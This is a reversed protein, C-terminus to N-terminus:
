PPLPFPFPPSVGGHLVCVIHKENRGQLWRRVWRARKELLIQDSGWKGRKSNWDGDEETRAEDLPTFDIGRFAEVKELEDRCSGTDCPLESTEQLEPM